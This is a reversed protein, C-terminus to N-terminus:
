YPDMPEVNITVEGTFCLDVDEFTYKGGNIIEGILILKQRENMSAFDIDVDQTYEASTEGTFEAM